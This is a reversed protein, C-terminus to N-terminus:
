KKSEKKVLVILQRVIISLTQNSFKHEFLKSQALEPKNLVRTVFARSRPENM